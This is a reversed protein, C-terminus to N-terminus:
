LFRAKLVLALAVCLMGWPVVGVWFLYPNEHDRVLMGFVVCAVAVVFLIGCAIWFALDSVLPEL